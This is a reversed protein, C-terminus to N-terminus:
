GGLPDLLADIAQPSYGKKWNLKFLPISALDQLSPAQSDALHGDLLRQLIHPGRASIKPVSDWHQRLRRDTALLWDFSHHQWFYSDVPRGSLAYAESADQWATLLPHDPRAAIFWNAVSRLPQPRTFAFFGTHAARDIWTDLPHRCITTADTWVGGYRALLRLRIINAQHNVRLGDPFAPLDIVADLRSRDLLQIDWGPNRSRWSDIAHRVLAPAQDEGQLWLMWLRRPVAEPVALRQQLRAWDQPFSALGEIRRHAKDLRDRHRVYRRQHARRLRQWRVQVPQAFM